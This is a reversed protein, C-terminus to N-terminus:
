HIWCREYVGRVVITNGAIDLEELTDLMEGVLEDTHTVAAFYHRRLQMEWDHDMTTNIEGTWGGWDNVGGVSNGSGSSGSSGSSSGSKTGNYNYQGILEGSHTFAIPPMGWPAYDNNARRVAPSTLPYHVLLREPVVFPLHPRHFGVALFFPRANHNYNQL